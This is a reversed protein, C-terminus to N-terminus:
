AYSIEKPQLTKMYNIIAQSIKQQRIKNCREKEEKEKNQRETYAKKEKSVESLYKDKDEPYNLYTHEGHYTIALLDYNKAAEEQTTYYNSIEKGDVVIRSRWCKQRKGIAKVVGKYRGRFYDHKSNHLNKSITSKRLNSRKNNLGNRDIHDPIEDETMCGYIHELIEKHMSIFKGRKNGDKLKGKRVAYNTNRGIGTCWTDKSLWEYDEDDVLTKYGRTLVIEKM